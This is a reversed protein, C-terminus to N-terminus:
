GGGGRHGSRRKDLILGDILHSPPHISQTHFAANYHRCVFITPSDFTSPRFPFGFKLNGWLTHWYLSQLLLTHVNLTHCMTRRPLNKISTVAPSEWRHPHCLTKRCLTEHCFNSLIAVVLQVVVM